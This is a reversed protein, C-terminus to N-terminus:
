ALQEGPFLLRNWEAGFEHRLSFLRSLTVDSLELLARLDNLATTLGDTVAEKFSTIEDDQLTAGGDRASYSLHLIM